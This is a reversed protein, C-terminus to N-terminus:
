CKKADKFDYKKLIKINLYKWADELMKLITIKQIYM